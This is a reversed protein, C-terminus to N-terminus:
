IYIFLLIFTRSKQIFHIIKYLILYTKREWTKWVEENKKEKKLRGGFFLFIFYFSFFVPSAKNNTVLPASLEFYNSVAVRKAWVYRVCSNKVLHVHFNWKAKKLNKDDCWFDSLAQSKKNLKPEISTKYSILKIVLERSNAGPRSVDCTAMACSWRRAWRLDSPLRQLVNKQTSLFKFFFFSVNLWAM